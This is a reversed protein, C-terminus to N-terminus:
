RIVVEKGESLILQIVPTAATATEAIPAKAPARGSKIATCTIAVLAALRLIDTAIGLDEKADDKAMETVTKKVKTVAKRTFRELVTM